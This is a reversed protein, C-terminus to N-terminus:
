AVALPTPLPGRAVSVGCMVSRVLWVRCACWVCAVYVGYVDWVRAHAIFLRLFGSLCIYILGPSFLSPSLHSTFGPSAPAKQAGREGERPTQRYTQRDGERKCEDVIVGRLFPSFSSASFSLIHHSLSLRARARGLGRRRAKAHPQGAAQPAEEGEGKRM